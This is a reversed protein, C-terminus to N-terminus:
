CGWLVGSEAMFAPARVFALDGLRRMAQIQLEGRRECHHFESTPPCGFTPKPARVRRDYITPDLKLQKTGKVSKLGIVVHSIVKGYGGTQSPAEEPTLETVEGEYM